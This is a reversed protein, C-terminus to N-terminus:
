QGIPAPYFDLEELVERIDILQAEMSPSLPTQDAVPPSFDNIKNNPLLANQTIAPQQIAVPPPALDDM